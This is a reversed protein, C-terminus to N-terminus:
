YARFTINHRHHRLAEFNELKKAPRQVRWSPLGILRLGSRLIEHHCARGCRVIM